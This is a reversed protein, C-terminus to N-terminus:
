KQEFVPTFGFKEQCFDSFIKAAITNSIDDIKEVPPPKILEPQQVETSFSPKFDAFAEDIGFADLKQKQIPQPPPPAHQVPNSDWSVEFSPVFDAM